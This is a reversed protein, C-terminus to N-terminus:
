GMGASAEPGGYPFTGGAAAPGGFSCGAQDKPQTLLCPVAVTAPAKKKPPPPLASGLKEIDARSVHPFKCPNYKCQGTLFAICYGKGKGRAKGKSPSGDAKAQPAAGGKKPPPGKAPSVSRSPRVMKSKETASVM